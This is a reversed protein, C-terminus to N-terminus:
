SNGMWTPLPLLASCPGELQSSTCASQRCWIYSIHSQTHTHTHLVTDTHSQPVPFSTSSLKVCIPIPLTRGDSILRSLRAPMFARLSPLVEKCIFCVSLTHTATYSQSYRPSLPLCWLTPTLSWPQLDSLPLHSSPNTKEPCGGWSWGEGEKPGVRVQPVQGAAKSRLHAHPHAHLFACTIHPMRLCCPKPEEVLYGGLRGNWSWFRESHALPPSSLSGDCQALLSREQQLNSVQPVCTPLPCATVNLAPDM